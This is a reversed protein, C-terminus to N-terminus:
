SAAIVERMKDLFQDVTTASIISATGRMSSSSIGAILLNITDKVNLRLPHM